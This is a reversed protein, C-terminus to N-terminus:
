ETDRVYEFHLGKVSKFGYEKKLIRMITRRDINLKESADRTGRFVEGTEICMIYKVKRTKKINEIGEKSMKYGKKHKRNKHIEKMKKKYKENAWINKYIDSLKQKEKETYIHKTRNEKAKEIQEPTHKYGTAGEGGTSLNYGYNSNASNYQKILEIEKQKAEKESLDTYLIKHEINEWGYKNIAKMMLNNHSYGNGNRWREKMNQKTTIGIYVKKNPFIHIYVSYKM